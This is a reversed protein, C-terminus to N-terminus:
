LLRRGHDDTTLAMGTTRTALGICASTTTGDGARAWYQVGEERPFIARLTPEVDAMERM